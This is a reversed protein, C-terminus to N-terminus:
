IRSDSSNTNARLWADIRDAYRGIGIGAVLSLISPVIIWLLAPHETGAHIPIEFM